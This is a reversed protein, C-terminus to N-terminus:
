PTMDCRGEQPDSDPPRGRQGGGPRAAAGPEPLGACGANQGVPAGPQQPHRMLQAVRQPRDEQVDVQEGLLQGAGALRRPPPRRTGPPSGCGGPAHRPGSRLNSTVRAPPAYASDPEPDPCSAGPRPPPTGPAPPGGASAESPGYCPTFPGSGESTLGFTRM